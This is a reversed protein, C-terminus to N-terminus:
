QFNGLFSFIYEKEEDLDVLKRAIHSLPFSIYHIIASTIQNFEIHYTGYILIREPKIQYM